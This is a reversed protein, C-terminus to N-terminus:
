EYEYRIADEAIEEIDSYRPTGLIDVMAHLREDYYILEYLHIDCIEKHYLIEFDYGEYNGGIREEINYEVYGKALYTTYDHQIEFDKFYERDNRTM